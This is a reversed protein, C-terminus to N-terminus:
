QWARSDHCDVGHEDTCQVVVPANSFAFEQWCEPTYRPFNGPTPPTVGACTSPVQQRSREDVYAITWAENALNTIQTNDAPLSAGCGGRALGEFINGTSGADFVVGTMTCNENSANVGFNNSILSNTVKVTPTDGYLVPSEPGVANEALYGALDVSCQAKETAEACAAPFYRSMDTHIKAALALQTYKAPNILAYTNESEDGGASHCRTCNSFLQGGREADPTRNALVSRDWATLNLAGGTTDQPRGDGMEQNNEVVTSTSIDVESDISTIAAGANYARNNAFTSGSVTVSGGASHIAAGTDCTNNTLSVNVLELDGGNLIAGGRTLQSQNCRNGSINGGRLSLAGSNRFAAGREAENDLANINEGIFESGDQIVVAGGANAGGAGTSLRVGQLTLNKATLVAMIGPTSSTSYTGVELIRNGTSPTLIANPLNPASTGDAAFAGSVTMNKTIPLYGLALSYTVGSILRVEAAVSQQNAEEIAARLSCAGTSDQCLGDGPKADKTDATTNVQFIPGTNPCGTLTAAVALFLVSNVHKM